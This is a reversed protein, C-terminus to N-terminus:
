FWGQFNSTNWSKQLDFNGLPEEASKGFLFFLIYELSKEANMVSM